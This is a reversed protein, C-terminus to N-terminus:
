SHQILAIIAWAVDEMQRLNRIACYVFLLTSAEVVVWYIGTRSCDRGAM